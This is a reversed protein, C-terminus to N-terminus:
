DRAKIFFHLYQSEGIVSFFILLFLIATKDSIQLAESHWYSELVAHVLINGQEWGQEPTFFSFLHRGQM